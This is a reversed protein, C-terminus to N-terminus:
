NDKPLDEPGKPFEPVVEQPLDIHKVEPLAETKLRDEEMILWMLGKALYPHIASFSYKVIDYDTVFVTLEAVLNSIQTKYNGGSFTKLDLRYFKPIINETIQGAEEYFYKTLIYGEELAYISKLIFQPHKTMELYDIEKSLNQYTAFANRANDTLAKQEPLSLKKMYEPDKYKKSYGEIRHNLEKSSDSHVLIANKNINLSKILNIVQGIFEMTYKLNRANM